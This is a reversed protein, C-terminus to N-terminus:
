TPYYTNCVSGSKIGHMEVAYIQDLANIADLTFTVELVKNDIEYNLM